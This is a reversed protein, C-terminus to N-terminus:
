LMDAVQNQFMILYLCRNCLHGVAKKGGPNEAAVDMNVNMTKIMVIM